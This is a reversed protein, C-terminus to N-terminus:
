VELLLVLCRLLLQAGSLGLVLRECVAVTGELELELGVLLHEARGLSFGGGGLGQNIDGFVFALLFGEGAQSNEAILNSCCIGGLYVCRSLAVEAVM